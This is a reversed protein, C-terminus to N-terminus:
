IYIYKFILLKEHLNCASPLFWNLAIVFLRYKQLLLTYVIANIMLQNESRQTALYNFFLTMTINDYCPKQTLALRLSM